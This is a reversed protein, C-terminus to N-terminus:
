DEHALLAPGLQMSLGLLNGVRGYEQPGILTGVHDTRIQHSVAADALDSARLDCRIPAFCILSELGFLALDYRAAQSLRVKGTALDM